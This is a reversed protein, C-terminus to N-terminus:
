IKFELNYYYDSMGEPKEGCDPVRVAESVENIKSEIKINQIQKKLQYIFSIILGSLLGLAIATILM